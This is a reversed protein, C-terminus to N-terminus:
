ATTTSVKFKQAMEKWKHERKFARRFLISEPYNCLIMQKLREVYAMAMCRKYKQWAIFKDAKEKLYVDADAITGYVPITVDGKHAYLRM